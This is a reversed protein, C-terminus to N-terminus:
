FNNNVLDFIIILYVSDYSLKNSRISIRITILHEYIKLIIQKTNNLFKIKNYIFQFYDECAELPDNSIMLQYISDSFIGYCVM